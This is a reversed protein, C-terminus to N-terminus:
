VFHELKLNSCLVMVTQSKQYIVNSLPTVPNAKVFATTFSHGTFATKTISSLACIATLVGVFYCKSNSGFFRDRQCCYHTTLYVLNRPTM